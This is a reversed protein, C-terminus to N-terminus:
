LHQSNSFDIHLDKYLLPWTSAMVNFEECTEIGMTVTAVIGPEAWWGQWLSFSSRYVIDSTQLCAARSKFYVM